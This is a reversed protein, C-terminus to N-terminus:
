RKVILRGISIGMQIFGGLAGAGLGMASIRSTQVTLKAAKEKPDTTETVNPHNRALKPIYSAYFM